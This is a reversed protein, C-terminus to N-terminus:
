TLYYLWKPTSIAYISRMHVWHMLSLQDIFPKYLASIRVQVISDGRPILCAVPMVFWGGGRQNHGSALHALLFLPGPRIFLCMLVQPFCVSNSCPTNLLQNTWPSFFLFFFVLGNQKNFILSPLSGYDQLSCLLSHGRKSPCLCAQAQMNWLFLNSSGIARYHGRKNAESIWPQENSICVRPHVWWHFDPESQVIRM